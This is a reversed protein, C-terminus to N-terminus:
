VIGVRQYFRRIAPDTLLGSQSQLMKVGTNNNGEVIVPTGDQDVAIDWGVYYAEPLARAAALVTERIRDWHPLVLGTFAVGTRPHHTYPKDEFPSDYPNVRGTGMRGTELDVVIGVGGGSWNDTPFTEETGIRQAARAIFPEADGPTWLTLVRMTNAGFPSLGRWFEHQELAREVLTVPRADRAAEYPRVTAGRRAVLRGDRTELLRINIGETGNEPKAIFRGGDAVLFAELEARAIRRPAGRAGLPDLVVDHATVLAVTEPQAFDQDALIRRLLLKQDFLAPFPNIKVCRFLRTYDDIYDGAEIRARDYVAVNKSEFGRRWAWLKYGLPLDAAREDRRAALWYTQRLEQYRHAGVAEILRQKLGKPLPGGPVPPAPPVAAPATM